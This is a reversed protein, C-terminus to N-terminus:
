APVRGSLAPDPCHAHVLEFESSLQAARQLTSPDVTDPDVVIYAPMVRDGPKFTKRCRACTTHSVRQKLHHGSM